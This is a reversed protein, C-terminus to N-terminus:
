PAGAGSSCQAPSRPSGSGRALEQFGRLILGKRSRLLNLCCGREDLASARALAQCLGLQSPMSVGMGAAPARLRRCESVKRLVAPDMQKRKVQQQELRPWRSMGRSM